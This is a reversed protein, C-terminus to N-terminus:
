ENPGFTVQVNGSLEQGMLKGKIKVDLKVQLLKYDDPIINNLKKTLLKPVLEDVAKRSKDQDRNLQGNEDNGLVLLQPNEENDRQLADLDEDSITLELSTM